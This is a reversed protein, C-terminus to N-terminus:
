MFMERVEDYDLEVRKDKLVQLALEQLDYSRCRILERASIQVDCMMRGCVASKEAFTAKGHSQQM